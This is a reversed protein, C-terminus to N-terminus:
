AARRRLASEVFFEAQESLSRADVRASRKLKMWVEDRLRVTLQNRRRMKPPLPQRGQRKKM